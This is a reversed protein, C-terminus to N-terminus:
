SMGSGPQVQSSVQDATMAGTWIRLGELSGALYNGTTGGKAGRGMALEGSGPQAATFGSSADSPQDFDGVYLHLKGYRPVTKSPDSTDDWSEQADFVGTVQVWTDTEALDGGPVEASQTVKGEAGLATRTFKWQYTGAAPKTIWLAWASENGTRQGAVQGTYGVPKATLAESDVEVSASVTFSGSEDVVPGTMSAYGTTGNLVVASQDANPAAGGALKMSAVPYATTEPIATTTAGAADWQAVLENTPVDDVAAQAEKAIEDGTLPRQWVAVEDLLGFFNEGYKGSLKSRGMQLGENATWPEYNPASKILVVPQGQPRGNVFLQITDNSKDTDGKTDFVGTLHTWVNLPPNVQDAVSRVFTHVAQDRDTRNFMWQKGSSSYYLAFASGNTGPETLVVRNASPNSLQVWASVTFSDKTNVAATATAAYGVQKAPDTTDDNLRLSYDLDGRRARTSWGTGDAGFFTADHRAGAETATDKATMIGSGPAGDDLHWRGVPGSAPSVKFTFEAPTGWRTRGSSDLKLDSAEVSLVQTGTLSPIVDNVTVTSGSVQKTDQASTTLLRWRYAKVDTDAANHTFTFSGPVGPGGKGECLTVTCETYPAGATITPTKPATSDIKFYCWSSYLSFLDGSAGDYSWHSQTRAKLRYLGGDARNSTRLSQLTEDPVWGSAPRYDSWVQHWAADDGREVIYEAQLSGEEDGLHAEVKTQVRAQVMPDVRTVMLPDTSSTRCYSTNGNGPIVGVNTPVGPQHAYNVKLEANDDFRKWSRADGEDKAKLMFTLRKIKGDAFSRVTSKLNEDPEAPNDNFEVWHDPQSPSCNDGRGYSVNKDGMLDLIKPGPWRTGESMNDTRVLDVWHADCNFSWTEFARFTADLIYKGALQTPSLEYLMRNKYGNGCYYGDANGCLGVGYEGKFQWWRDGDSSIVSRESVGLGVSPDIRVPYVTGAGRLLDLDPTVSVAEGEVRVPLVATADGLGPQTSDGEGAPDQPDDAAARAQQAAPVQDGASDWMQGAPGKFVTNGNEDVARLGGGAGPVVQLGDGSVSLTVQELESSAAAEASKVVLVEHYGEATATLELDVGAMVNAYTATAGNITPEPLVGPWGLSVSGQKSGLRIMDKGGGGTFALDVVSAKPGVSGDSRHVLTTDVGQWSGDSARVRRPATSQTLTFSGDPNAETTAYETRAATIEVPEGTEAAQALATQEGVLGDANATAKVVAGSGVGVAYAPATGAM